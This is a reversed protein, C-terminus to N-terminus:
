ESLRRVLKEHLLATLRPTPTNALLPTLPQVVVADGAMTGGGGVTLGVGEVVELLMLVGVLEGVVTVGGMEGM